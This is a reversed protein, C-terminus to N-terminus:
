KRPEVTTESVPIPKLAAPLAGSRLINVLRNVDENTYNGTIVGSGGSIADNITPASQVVNDLLIALQRGKNRMTLEHLLAAGQSNLEFRVAPQGRGDKDAAVTVLFEGTIARPRATDPDREPDRTLIFYEYRKDRDKEALHDPQEVTRSFFLLGDHELPRHEKRAAEMQRWFSDPTATKEAANNLGLRTREEAGLEVWSYTHDGLALHFSKGDPPRPAPPPRGAAADAKLKELEGPNDKLSDFQAKAVGFSENDDAANALIRFELV